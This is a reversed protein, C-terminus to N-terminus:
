KKVKAGHIRRHYAQAMANVISIVFFLVLLTVLYEILSALINSGGADVPANHRLKAKQRQWLNTVPEVLLSGVLPILDLFALVRNILTENFAVIVFIVQISMKIVAKGILTAGFFTWFPILFHGCTIGALDFLPNPISACALIGFFGVKNVLSEIRLKLKDVFTMSGQNKQKRHLEELEVLDEVEEPDLLSQRAARSIFYPPLEGLATGAGWMMAELKVKNMISWLTPVWDTKQTDPCLIEDPYPPEPFHLTGCEYAALSVKAIHPGLYLLFTHFGTGLGVSSLVGLGTWYLCWLARKELWLVMAQHPGSVLTSSHLSLLLLLSLGVSIRYTNMRQVVLSILCLTERIFYHLVVIPHKWLVLNEREEKLQEKLSQSVPHSSSSKGNASSVGGNSESYSETRRKSVGGPEEKELSLAYQPNSVTRSECVVFYKPDIPKESFGTWECLKQFLGGDSTRSTRVDRNRFM